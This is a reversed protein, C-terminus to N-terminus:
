EQPPAEEQAADQPPNRLIELWADVRAQMMAEIEPDTFAVGEPLHLADQYMGFETDVAFEIKM